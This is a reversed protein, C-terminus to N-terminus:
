REPLPCFMGESFGEAEVNFTRNFRARYNEWAIAASLEVLERESFRLRLAGFLEDSVHSPTRTLAVALLLVLKEDEDFHTSCEFKSIESLQHKTIGTKRSV